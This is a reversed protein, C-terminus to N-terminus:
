ANNYHNNEKGHSHWGNGILFIFDEFCKNSVNTIDYEKYFGLTFNLIAIKNIKNAFKKNLNILSAYGLLQLLEYRNYEKGCKFDILIDDIILDCDAPIMITKNRIEMRFGLSPNLTVKKNKIVKSFYISLESILFEVNIKSISEIFKDVTEEKPIRGFSESHSLSTLFIEVLIDKSKYKKTDMMKKYCLKRCIPLSYFDFDIGNESKKGIISEIDYL